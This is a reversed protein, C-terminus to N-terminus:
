HGGGGGGGGRGGGGYGGFGGSRSYNSASYTTSRFSRSSNLFNRSYFYHNNFMSTNTTLAEPCRIKLAEIVKNSIGFATAYVLYKEWLIIDVVTKENMLTSSNLFNYLGLWKSYENEGYQTLLILKRSKLKLWISSIFLTIGLIFYAGFSLGIETPYSILNVFLLIIISLTLYFNAFSNVKNKAEKFDAKQTIGESTGITKITSKIVTLFTNTNEYDKGVKNQFSSMSIETTKCHRLILNFYLEETKSLPELNIVNNEIPLLINNTTENNEINNIKNNDVLNVVPPTPKYKIIIKVNSSVWNNEEKIKTLEIYKKRVLSLLIASYSNKEINVNKEKSFVLTAAFEPDLDSPIERFYTYDTEAKYFNYKSKTSKIKILAFMITLISLVISILLIYIKTNRAKIPANDYKIQEAKIEDYVDTTSYYNENAYNTFIHKDIGYSVLSFEIYENYSKFKLESEDLDFKFTYYGPNLTPSEILEFSNFNTGYTNADYNGKRPMDKNPILIEASYSELYNITEESYMSLYLESSDNYLLAANIMEYEIEFTLEERYIGDIYFFVCEYDRYTENYPGESHYWHNPGTGNDYENTYDSDFWYLSDSEDYIIETGDDLIQKVSNVKYRVNLGDVTAEPLDRWLEWFLNDESAAHIDYTLRETIIVKGESYPEDVLIAQYDVDTIRAYDPASAFSFIILVIIPVLIPAFFYFINKFYEKM